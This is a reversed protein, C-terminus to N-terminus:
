GRPLHVYVQQGQSNFVMVALNANDSIAELAKRLTQLHNQVSALTDSDSEVVTNEYAPTIVVTIVQNDMTFNCVRIEGSCTKELDTRAQQTIRAFQLKAEAQKLASSYPDVLPQAMSFYFSDQPIQKVNNLAQNWHGVTAEWQNQHEYNKALNAANIAQDYTKAALLEKTARDRATSLSLQYEALLKQAEQYGPSTQPIVTLANVVVQWTFQVKQWDQLSKASEQRKTAVKAVALAAELKKLWKQEKRLQTLAIQLNTRYLSLKPQVLEYLPNNPNIAELHTIARRWIQQKQQLEELSHATKISKQQALSEIEFAKVVHNITESESKLSTSLQKAKQYHKSWPPITNLSTSATEFQQQVKVLEPKSSYPQILQRFSMQLQTAIQIEKCEFLVCPRTLFYAGGGLLAIVVLASSFRPKFVERVVGLVRLFAKRRQAKAHPEFDQDVVEEVVGESVFEKVEESLLEEVESSSLTLSRHAYPRKVGTVRLFMQVQQEPRNTMSQLIEELVAFTTETDHCVNEPHQTLIMLQDNQIACKIQFFKAAPIEALLNELLIQALFELDEQKATVQTTGRHEQNNQREPQTYDSSSEKISHLYM